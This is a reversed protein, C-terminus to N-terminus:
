SSQYKIITEVSYKNHRFHLAVKANKITHSDIKVFSYVVKVQDTFGDKIKKALNAFSM